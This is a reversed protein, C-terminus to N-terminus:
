TLVRSIVKTVVIDVGDPPRVYLRLKTKAGSPPKTTLNNFFVVNGFSTGETGIVETIPYGDSSITTARDDSYDFVARLRFQAPVGLPLGTVAVSCTVAYADVPGTILSLEGDDGIKVLKWQDDDTAVPAAYPQDDNRTFKTVDTMGLVGGETAQYKELADQWTTYPVDPSKDPGGDALGDKGNKYDQVQDAAGSSLDPCGIAILHNHDDFYSDEPSGRQWSTTGCERMIITDTDSMKETDLAGGQDHTGASASVGGANYSAQFIKVKRDSAWGREARMRPEFMDEIITILCSCVRWGRWSVNAQHAM